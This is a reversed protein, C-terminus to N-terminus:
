VYGTKFGILTYRKNMKPVKVVSISDKEPSFCGPFIEFIVQEEAALKKEKLDLRYLKLGHHFVIDHFGSRCFLHTAKFDFEPVDSDLDPWFDYIADFDKSLRKLMTNTDLWNLM